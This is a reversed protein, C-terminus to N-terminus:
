ALALNSLSNNEFLISITLQGSMSNNLFVHYQCGSRQIGQIYLQKMKQKLQYGINEDEFQVWVLYPKRTPLKEFSNITYPVGNTLGDSTDINHVIMYQAGVKIILNEM